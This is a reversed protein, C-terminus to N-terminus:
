KSKISKIGSYDSYVKKSDVVKYSRVKYYYTTGKKTTNDFSLKNIDTITKISTYKGSKSTSRYVEYGDAMNVSGVTINIKKTVIKKLTLSPVKTTQKKNVKVRKVVETIDEDKLNYDNIIIKKM